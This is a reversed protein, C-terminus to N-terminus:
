RGYFGRTLRKRIHAAVARDLAAALDKAVIGLEESNLRNGEGELIAPEATDTRKSQTLEAMRDVRAIEAPILVPQIKAM